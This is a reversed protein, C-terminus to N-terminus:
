PLAHTQRVSWRSCLRFACFQPALKVRWPKLCAHRVPKLFVDAVHDAPVTNDFSSRRSRKV